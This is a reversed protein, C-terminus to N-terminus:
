LTLYVNEPILAFIDEEETIYIKELEPTRPFLNYRSSNSQGILTSFLFTYLYIKIITSINKM